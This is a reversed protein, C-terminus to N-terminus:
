YTTCSIQNMSPNSTSVGTPPQVDIWVMAGIDEHPLRHCHFVVKGGFDATKFRVVCTDIGHMITDYWEGVRYNGCNQSVLAGNRWVGILQMPYVHLHLPHVTAPQIRFEYVRDYVFTAVPTTMSFSKPQSNWSIASSQGAVTIVSQIPSANLLSQMRLPRIPQWTVEGSVGFPTGTNASGTTFTVDVRYTPSGWYISTTTGPNSCKLAVDLRGPASISYSVTPPFPVSSLWMGDRAVPRAICNVPFNIVSDIGMPVAVAIRLRYWQNPVLTLQSPSTVMHRGNVHSNSASSGHQAFFLLKENTTSWTNFDSTAVSPPINVWTGDERTDEIILM